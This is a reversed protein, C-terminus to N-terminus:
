DMHLHAMVWKGALYFGTGIGGTLGVIISGVIQLKLKERRESKIKEKELWDRFLNHHSSHEKPDIDGFIAFRIAELDNPTLAMHRRDTRDQWDNDSV